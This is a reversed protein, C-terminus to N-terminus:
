KRLSIQALSEELEKFGYPKILAAVFGSAAYNVLLPHTAYGSSIIARVNPDIERLRPLTEEAGIGCPVTIDLIVVDFRSDGAYAQRYMEISDEGSKAVTVTHGLFSLMDSTASLIAEEDDMLLIRYGAAAGKKKEHSRRPHAPPAPAIKVAGETEELERLSPELLQLSHDRARLISKEADDLHRCEDEEHTCSRRALQINALASSLSNNIDHAAKRVLSAPYAKKRVTRTTRSYAAEVVNRFTRPGFPRVLYRCPHGAPNDLDPLDEDSDAVLIVPIGLGSQIRELIENLSMNGFSPAGLLVVDPRRSEALAVAKDGTTVRELVGFGEKNALSELEEAEAANGVAILMTVKAMVSWREAVSM